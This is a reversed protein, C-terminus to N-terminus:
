MNTCLSILFVWLIQKTPKTQKAKDSEGNTEKNDISFRIIQM